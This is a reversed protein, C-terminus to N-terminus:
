HGVISSSNNMNGLSNMLQILTFMESIANLIDFADNERWIIQNYRLNKEVKIKGKNSMIADAFHITNKCSETQLTLSEEIINILSPVAM